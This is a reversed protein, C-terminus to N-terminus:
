KVGCCPASAPISGGVGTKRAILSLSPLVLLSESLRVVISALPGSLIDSESFSKFQRPNPLCIQISNDLCQVECHILIPTYLECAVVIDIEIDLKHDNHQQKHFEFKDLVLDQFGSSIRRRM